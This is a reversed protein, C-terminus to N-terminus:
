QAVPEWVVEDQPALLALRSPRVGKSFGTQGRWAPQYWVSLGIVVLFRAMPRRSPLTATMVPALEPM